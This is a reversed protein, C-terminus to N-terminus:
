EERHLDKAAFMAFARKGDPLIWVGVAYTAIVIGPGDPSVVRDGASLSRPRRQPQIDTIPM